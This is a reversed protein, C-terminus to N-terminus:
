LDALVRRIANEGIDRVTQEARTEMVLSTELPVERTVRVHDLLRFTALLEDQAAGYGLEALMDPSFTRVLDCLAAWDTFRQVEPLDAPDPLEVPLLEAWTKALFTPRPRPELHSAVSLWADICPLAVTAHASEWVEGFRKVTLGALAVSEVALSWHELVAELLNDVAMLVTVADREELDPALAYIRDGIADWDEDGSLLPLARGSDVGGQTSLTLAVGHPGCRTLFRRRLQEDAALRDIVLDRWTPHVWAVRM